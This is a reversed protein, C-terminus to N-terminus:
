GPTRPGAAYRVVMRVTRPKDNWHSFAQCVLKGHEADSREVHADAFRGRGVDQGASGRVDTGPAQADENRSFLEVGTVQASAPVPACVSVQLADQESCAARETAFGVQAGRCAPLSVMAASSSATSSAPTEAAAFRMQELRATSAQLAQMQAQLETRLARTEDRSEQSRFEAYAFGGVGAAVIMAITWLLSRVGGRRSARRDNAAARFSGILQFLATLVTAIAGIM